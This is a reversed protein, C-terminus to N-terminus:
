LLKQDYLAMQLQKVLNLWAGINQGDVTVWDVATAAPQEWWEDVLGRVRQCSELCRQADLVAKKLEALWREAVIKEQEGALKLCYNTMREYDQQVRHAHNLLICDNEVLTRRTHVLNIAKSLDELISAESGRLKLCFELSELVSALGADVGEVGSRYQLAASVRCISPIASPDRAGARATLIAANKEAAALAEPGTAGATGISEVLAQPTAPLMYLSNDLSQYFSSLEREILNKANNSINVVAACAPIITRAAHERAALPQQEWFTSAEMNARLLATYITELETRRADFGEIKKWKKKLSDEAEKWEACLKNLRQVEHMLTSLSARLGAVERERALVELEFSRTSGLNQTTGGAPFLQLAGMDSSGHLRNLLKQCLAKAEAAKNLADETAVFQQVHAKQRELLQDYTGKTPIDAGIKGNGYVQYPLPSSSDPSAADLVKDNEYKYRLLEADARIDIKESERHILSSVRLTYTTISELLISPNKLADKIIEKVNALVEGDLDIGLKAADIQSNISIGSGEYAPFTTQIREIMHSALTECAKRTNRERSTEVLVIDESSRTGKVTSYVAEKESPSHLEDVVDTTSGTTLRRVDRAQDVYHHLRRQYEAFIKAAEDCQQDYAELMVQKHRANSREDLMRKRESEERAVEVMRAKLEKRQRRVVNRLREAEEEALDRERIVTERAEASSGEEFGVRGKEKERRRGRGVDAPAAPPPPPPPPPAVGHVLMNRRATGVTRESRVRQLLFNWIPVMNGRCIKRLQDPSPLPAPYGMEKQLWELIAEPRLAASGQGQM